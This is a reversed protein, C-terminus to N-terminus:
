EVKSLNLQILDDDTCFPDFYYKEVQRSEQFVKYEFSEMKLKLHLNVQGIETLLSDQSDEENQRYSSTQHKKKLALKQLDAAAPQGM